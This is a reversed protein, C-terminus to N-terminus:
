FLNKILTWKDRMTVNPNLWVTQRLVPYLFRFLLYKWRPETLRFYIYLSREQRLTDRLFRSVGSQESSGGEAHVIRPGRIVVNRYGHAVFRHQMETEEYYMFFAPNFAGCQDLVSRAVFLDAGTVYDVTMSHEPLVVPPESYIHLAKGIPVFLLKRWMDHVKPFSGFSHVPQGTLDELVCGIAALPEDSHTAYDYLMKVANNRLLTDPNLFLIYKGTAKTLALNNARGFGLNRESEILLIRKDHRLPEVQEPQSANDVVVIQYSIGHSYEVISDICAQLMSTTNYNVIIITVEQM